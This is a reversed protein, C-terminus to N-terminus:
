SEEAPGVAIAVPVSPGVMERIMAEMVFRLRAQLEDVAPTPVGVQLRLLMGGMWEMPPELRTGGIPREDALVAQLFNLGVQAPAWDVEPGLVAYMDMAQWTENPGLLGEPLGTLATRVIHMAAAEVGALDPNDFALSEGDRRFVEALHNRCLQTSHVVPRGCGTETCAIADLSPPQTQPSSM